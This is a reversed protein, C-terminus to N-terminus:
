ASALKCMYKRLRVRSVPPFLCKSMRRSMARLGTKPPTVEGAGEKKEGLSTGAQSPNEAQQERATPQKQVAANIKSAETPPETANADFIIFVTAAMLTVEVALAKTSVKM